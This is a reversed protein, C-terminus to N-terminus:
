SWAGWAMVSFCLAAATAFAADRRAFHFHDLVYFHGRFGRCKMADLIRDSRDISRVLLMGVLNGLTRYTHRNARPHFGRMKMASRLRLYELHVTNLYRVTFLLVQILKAPVRLHSLAHGLSVIEISGILGYITLLIANTRLTIIGARELGQATYEWPGIRFTVDGPVGLPITISVLLIFVNVIVIRRATDRWGFPSLIVAALGLLLGAFLVWWTECLAFLFSFGTATIILVRPDFTRWISPHETTQLIM